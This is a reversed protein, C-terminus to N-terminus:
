KAEKAKSKRGCALAIKIGAAYQQGRKGLGLSRLYKALSRVGLPNTDKFSSAIRELNFVHGRNYNESDVFDEIELPRPPCHHEYKWAGCYCGSMTNGPSLEVYVHKGYAEHLKYLQKNPKRLM